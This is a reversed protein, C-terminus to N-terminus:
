LQAVPPNGPFGTLRGGGSQPAIQPSPVVLLSVLKSLGGFAVLPIAYTCLKWLFGPEMQEDDDEEGDDEYADMVPMRPSIRGMPPSSDQPRMPSIRTDSRPSLRGLIDNTQAVPTDSRPDSVSSQFDAIRSRTPQPAPSAEAPTAVVATAVPNKEVSEISVERLADELIQDADTTTGNKYELLDTPIHIQDSWQGGLEYYEYALDKENLIDKLTSGINRASPAHGRRLALKWWEIAEKVLEVNKEKEYEAHLLLGLRFFATPNGLQAAKLYFAKAATLREKNEKSAEEELAVLPLLAQLHESQFAARRFFANALDTDKEVGYYSGDAAYADAVFHQAETCGYEAARKAKEFTRTLAEPDQSVEQFADRAEHWLQKAFENLDDDTNDESQRMEALGRDRAERLADQNETLWARRMNEYVTLLAVIKDKLPELEGSFPPLQDRLKIDHPTIEQLDNLDFDEINSPFEQSSVTYAFGNALIPSWNVGEQQKRLKIQLNNNKIKYTSQLSSAQSFLILNLVIEDTEMLRVLVSGEQLEVDLADLTWQTIDDHSSASSLSSLIKIQSASQSYTFPLIPSLTLPTMTKATNQAM